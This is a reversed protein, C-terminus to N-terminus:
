VTPMQFFFIFTQSVSALAKGLADGTQSSGSGGGSGGSSGGTTSSRGGAVSFLLNM